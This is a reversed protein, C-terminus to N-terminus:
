ILSYMFHLIGPMKSLLTFYPSVEEFDVAGSIRAAARKIPRRIETISVLHKSWAVQQSRIESIGCGL